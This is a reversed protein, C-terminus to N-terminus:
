PIAGRLDFGSCQNKLGSYREPLPRGYKKSNHIMKKKWEHQINIGRLQCLQLLYFLIDPVEKRIDEDHNEAGGSRLEKKVFNCLEGVEGALAIATYAQTEHAKNSRLASVDNHMDEITPKM